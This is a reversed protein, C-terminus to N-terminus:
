EKKETKKSLQNLIKELQDLETGYGAWDGNRLFDKAKHYHQLALGGLDSTEKTEVAVTSAEKGYTTEAKLVRNLAMELNEEMIVRNGLAVIVRKLEPLAATTATGPRPPRQPQGKAPKGSGSPPPAAAPSKQREQKAELYIPEVYLFAGSVPIALLNGRIVRSGKQDWLSLERSIDTQQDVRAEIQMPGYVLKEKPLKYVLLNGYNPLDSRAALWGIMNDKKSPTFPLMLLFEEKDGEPLKIIIYYPQMPQPNDGYIEYPSEWLDEQNYFVQVDQMHYTSYTKAQIEFLDMPYRIHKKLDAPMQDLPKFLHPFIHSYTKLIPDQEDVIFYSVDGSYADIVVKVSNRIYNLWRNRFRSKSRRSYPYMKSTTYADLIWFLKGESVVMYPDRDYALFPAIEDVRWDIRRSFMIRSDPLLYTTFLIQPDMFEIAFMLRRFFSNIPVGGKGEYDTYVNKDGRPFDFEKAQTKILVYADTKEGYYIAPRDIKLDIDISPPLDKIWLRPLGEKTVENVPSMAVGYGHTYILHSNVWTKAQPPLQSVVLERASLMVQRYQNDIQYRDVDVNNFDYYLRISQIQRYTQLLPREDWVRINQITVDHDKITERSLTDNAEFDVEKINNLNYAKRTHEINYAIFPAEKALENPKVVVKQVLVPIGHTLILIGGAWVVGSIFLHKLNFKFANYIIFLGWIFSIVMAIRFTPIKVHVDTYSAGFAPGGTSYLLGYVKLHYGWGILLVIIGGLVLLHKRINETIIIKPLSIPTDQVLKGVIELGGEKVYWTATVLAAFVFLVLLQEWTFIYFPLSFVYFGIDKSFIPDTIGFPQQYLYRLVLDWLASGRYAIVFSVILIGALLLDNANIGFIPTEGASDSRHDSFSHFQQAAYLNISTIIIVLMWIAAALGVRGFLMTWFVSAFTLNRFWLWNPYVSVVLGVM